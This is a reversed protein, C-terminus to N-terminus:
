AKDKGKDTEKEKDRNKEEATEEDIVDFASDIGYPRSKM